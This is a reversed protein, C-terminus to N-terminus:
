QPLLTLVAPPSCVAFVIFVTYLGAVSHFLFTTRVVAYKDARQALHPLHECMQIGPVSTSVPNFEGRIETPANPKMDFTDHHSAAGTLWVIVIQKANHGAGAVAEASAAKARARLVSALGVGALSSTGVQIVARRSVGAANGPLHDSKLTM